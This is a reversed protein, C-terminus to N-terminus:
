DYNGADQDGLVLQGSCRLYWRVADRVAEARSVGQGRRMRDLERLEDVPLSTAITTEMTIPTSIAAM